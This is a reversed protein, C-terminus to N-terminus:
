ISVCYFTILRNWISILIEWNFFQNVYVVWSEVIIVITWVKIVLSILDISYFMMNKGGFLLDLYFISVVTVKLWNQHLPQIDHALSFHMGLFNPLENFELILVPKDKDFFFCQGLSFSMTSVWNRPTITGRSINEM